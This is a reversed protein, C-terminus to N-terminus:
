APRGAWRRTRGSTSRDFAMPYVDFSAGLGSPPVTRRVTLTQTRELRVIEIAREHQGCFAM